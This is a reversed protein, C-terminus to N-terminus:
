SMSKRETSQCQQNPSMFPMQGTFFVPHQNTPPSMKVPAICTKRNWNDGGSGDDKAVFGSYFRSRRYEPVPKSLNDPLHGNFLHRTTPIVHELQQTWMLWVNQDPPIDVDTSRQSKATVAEMVVM